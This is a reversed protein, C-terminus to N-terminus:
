CFVVNLEVNVKLKLFIAVNFRPMHIYLIAAYTVGISIASHVNKQNVSIFELLEVVHTIRFYGVHWALGRLTLLM